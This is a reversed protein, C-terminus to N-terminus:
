GLHKSLRHRRHNGLFSLYSFLMQYKSSKELLADLVETLVLLWHSLYNKKKTKLCCCNSRNLFVAATVINPLLLHFCLGLSSCASVSPVSSTSLTALSKPISLSSSMLPNNFGLILTIENRIRKMLVYFTIKLKRIM